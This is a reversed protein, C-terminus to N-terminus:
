VGLNRLQTYFPGYSSIRYSFKTAAALLSSVMHILNNFFVDQFYDLSRYGQNLQSGQRTPSCPSFEAAGVTKLRFPVM